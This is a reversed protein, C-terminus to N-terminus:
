IIVFELILLWNGADIAGAFNFACQTSSVISFINDTAQKVGSSNYLTPKIIKSHANHTIALIGSALDATTFTKVLTKTKNASIDQTLLTNFM